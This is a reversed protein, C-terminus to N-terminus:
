FLKSYIQKLRGIKFAIKIVLKLREKVPMNIFGRPKIYIWGEVMIDQPLWIDDNKRCNFWYLPAVVIKDVKNNLWAGWWSFSSAALICRDAAAMLFLETIENEKVFIAEPLFSFIRKAIPADDTFILVQYDKLELNDRKCILDLADTYFKRGPVPRKLIFYDSGRVHCSIVPKKSVLYKKRCNDIEKLVSDKPKFVDM